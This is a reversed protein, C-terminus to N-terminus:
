DHRGERWLRIAGLLAICTLYETGPGEGEEAFISWDQINCSDVLDDFLLDVRDWVAAMPICEM